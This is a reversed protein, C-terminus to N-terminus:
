TSEVRFNTRANAANATPLRYIPLTHSLRVSYGRSAEQSEKSEFKQAATGEAPRRGAGIPWAWTYSQM